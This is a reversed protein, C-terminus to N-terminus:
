TSRTMRRAANAAQFSTEASTTSRTSLSRRLPASPIEAAVDFWRSPATRENVRQITRFPRAISSGSRLRRGSLAFSSRRRSRHTILVSCSRVSSVVVACPGSRQPMGPASRASSYRSASSVPRRTPSSVLRRTALKSRSAARGVTFSWAAYLLRRRSSTSGNRGSMAVASAGNRALRMGVEAANRMGRPQRAASISAASRSAASRLTCSPSPRTNSKWASRCLKM